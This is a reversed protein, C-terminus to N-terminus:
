EKMKNNIKAWHKKVQNHIENKLINSENFIEESRRAYTIFNGYEKSYKYDGLHTYLKYLKRKLTFEYKSGNYKKVTRAKKYARCYYKFLSKERIKVVQGDFSVGLYNLINKNTNLNILKDNGQSDYIFQETKSPNLDLRPISKAIRNIENIYENYKKSIIESDQIPIVIILDDCYRRYLGRKSTVYDNVQKDFDLMYVNSYISSIASGQPIGYSNENKKLYLKKFKRFEETTFYKPEKLMEKIKKNKDKEIDDREIYTYQTINKYICFHEIPLREVDLAQVLKDKLYDHDLNDFFVSFDGVFIFASKCKCIFELAEKSFHINCRGKLNNRYATAVKNIGRNISIKDYCENLIQGYYQYIFRDIHSSYFIDRKKERKEKIGTDKDYVYKNFIIEYHIFPYFGHKQIWNTNKIMNEYKVYDKKIDLHTYYKNKFVVNRNM